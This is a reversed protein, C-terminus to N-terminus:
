NFKLLSMTHIATELKDNPEISNECNLVLKIIDVKESSIAKIKRMNLRGMKCDDVFKFLDGCVGELTFKLKNFKEKKDSNDQKPVLSKNIKDFAERIAIFINQKSDNDLMNEFEKLYLNIVKNSNQEKICQITKITIERLDKSLTQYIYILYPETDTTNEDLSSITEILYNVEYITEKINEATIMFHSKNDQNNLQMDLEDKILQIREQYNLDNTYKLLTDKYEKYKEQKTLMSYFELFLCLVNREEISFDNIFRYIFENDVSQIHDIYSKISDDFYSILYNYEAELRKHFNESDGRRKCIDIYYKLHEQIFACANQEYYLTHFESIKQHCFVDQLIIMQEPMSFKVFDSKLYTNNPDYSYDLFLNICEKLSSIMQKEIYYLTKRYYFRIDSNEPKKLEDDKESMMIQRLLHCLYEDDKNHYNKLDIFQKKQAELVKLIIEREIYNFLKFDTLNNEKDDDKYKTIYEFLIPHYEELDKLIINIDNCSIIEKFSLSETPTSQYRFHMATEISHVMKKEEKSFNFLIDESHNYKIFIYLLYNVHKLELSLSKIYLNNESNFKVDKDYKSFEKAIFEIREKLYIISLSHIYDTYKREQKIDDSFNLFTLVLKQEFKNMEKFKTIYNKNEETLSQIFFNLKQFNKGFKEILKIFDKQMQQHYSKELYMKYYYVNFNYLEEIMYDYDIYPTINNNQYIIATNKLNRNNRIILNIIQVQAKFTLYKLKEFDFKPLSIINYYFKMELEPIIESDRESNELIEQAMEPISMAKVLAIYTDSIGKQKVENTEFMEIMKMSSTILVQDLKQHSKFQSILAKEIEKNTKNELDYKIAIKVMKETLEVLDPYFEYYQLKILEFKTKFLKLIEFDNKLNLAKKLDEVKKSFIKIIDIFIKKFQISKIDNKKNLFYKICEMSYYLNKEEEFNINYIKPIKEMLHNLYSEMERHELSTKDSVKILPIFCSLIFDYYDLDTLYAFSKNFIKEYLKYLGEIENKDKSEGLYKSKLIDYLIIRKYQYLKLIYNYLQNEDMKKLQNIEDEYSDYIEKLYDMDIKTGNEEFNKIEKEIKQTVNEYAAYTHKNSNNLMILVDKWLQNNINKTLKFDLDFFKFILEKEEDSLNYLKTFFIRHKNAEIPVNEINKLFRIFEYDRFTNTKLKLYNHMEESNLKKNKEIINIYKDFEQNLNEIIEKQTKVRRRNIIRLLDEEPINLRTVVAIDEPTLKFKKLGSLDKSKMPIGQQLCSFYETCFNIMDIPKYREVERQFSELTDPYQIEIDEKSM